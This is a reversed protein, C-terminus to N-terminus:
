AAVTLPRVFELSSDLEIAVAEQELAEAMKAAFAKVEPLRKLGSEDTFSSVITVPEEVLGYIPSLWGGVASSATFGGFLNALKVKAAKVWEAITEPSASEHGNLTTPIIVGIKHHKVNM